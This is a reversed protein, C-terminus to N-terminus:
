LANRYVYATDHMRVFPPINWKSCQNPRDTVSLIAKRCALMTIHPRCLLKAFLITAKLTVWSAAHM